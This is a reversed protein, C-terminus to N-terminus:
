EIVVELSILTHDYLWGHINSSTILVHVVTVTINTRCNLVIKQLLVMVQVIFCIIFKITHIYTRWWIKSYNFFNVQKESLYYRSLIKCKVLMQIAKWIILKISKYSTIVINNWLYLGTKLLFTNGSPISLQLQYMLKVWLIDKLEM